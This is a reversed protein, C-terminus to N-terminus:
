KKKKFLSRKPMEPIPVKKLFNLFSKFGEGKINELKVVSVQKILRDLLGKQLHVDKVKEIERVIKRVNEYANKTFYGEGISGIAAFRKKIDECLEFIKTKWDKESEFSENVATETRHVKGQALDRMRQQNDHYLQDLCREAAENKGSQIFNLVKAYLDRDVESEEEESFLSHYLNKFTDSNIKSFLERKLRRLADVERVFITEKAESLRDIFRKLLVYGESFDKKKLALDVKELCAGADINTAVEKADSLVSKLREEEVKDNRDISYADLLAQELEKQAEKLEKNEKLAMAKDLGSRLRNAVEGGKSYLREWMSDFIDDKILHFVNSQILEIQEIEKEFDNKVDKLSDLFSDMLLFTESYNGELFRTKIDKLLSNIKNSKKNEEGLTSVIAKKISFLKKIYSKVADKKVLSKLDEVLKQQGERREEATESKVGYGVEEIKRKVDEALVNHKELRQKLDNDERLENLSARKAEDLDELSLAYDMLHEIVEPLTERESIKKSLMRQWIDQPLNLDDKLIVGLAYLDSFFSYKSGFFRQIEPAMYLPTGKWSLDSICYEDQEKFYNALDFDILQVVGREPDYLTNEPKLDNHIVGREHLQFVELAMKVAIYARDAESLSSTTIYKYLEVGTYYESVSYVKEQIAESIFPKEKTYERAAYGKSYNTLETTIAIIEELGQYYQKKDAQKSVGMIKVIFNDGLRNQAIKVKGQAGEGIYNGNDIAYIEGAVKIFSYAGAGETFDHRSLKTGDPQEALAQEAEIWLWDPVRLLHMKRSWHAIPNHTLRGRQISFLEFFLLHIYAKQVVAFGICVIGWVSSIWALLTCKNSFLM